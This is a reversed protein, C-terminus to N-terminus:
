RTSKCSLQSADVRLILPEEVNGKMAECADGVPVVRIVRALINKAANIDRDVAVNCCPCFLTRHEEPVMRSGCVTCKSSTWPAKVYKVPLGLWRAKYEIQRQLEYFSWSNMKSRFKRGQKNEKRYRRRIGKIDELIIGMRQNVIKKSTKHLINHVRNREKKGYKTFIKKRIRADQRKFKSKVQMYTQKIKNAKELDYITFKNQIDFTTANDLNRDIAVFSTLKQEAIQRSYSIILKNETITISGRKTNQLHKLM